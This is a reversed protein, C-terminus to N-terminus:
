LAGGVLGIGGLLSVGLVASRLAAAPMRRAVFMGGATGLALAVLEAPGPLVVGLVMATVVNQVIFFSHLSGRTTAPDWGANAAYLGIPPGGVGGVVNLLASGVGTAVTGGTSRVRHWRVGTALVSVAVIVSGGATLALWRTDADRLAYAILPTALLTPVLLRGVDGRRAHRGDRLLPVASSLAALTVTAAVGERPGLHLIMASTAVLSFGMGTAAQATAGLLIGLLALLHPSALVDQM